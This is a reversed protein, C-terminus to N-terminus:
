INNTDDCKRWPRFSVMGMSHVAGFWLAMLEHVIREAKWPATKEAAWPRLRSSQEMVWQICDKHEPVTHGSRAMEQEDIRQQVAPVLMNFM